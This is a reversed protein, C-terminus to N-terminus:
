AGAADLICSVHIQRVLIQDRMQPQSLLAYKEGWPLQKIEDFAAVGNFPCARSNWGMIVAQPRAFVQYTLKGPTVASGQQKILENQKVLMDRMYQGGGTGCNVTLGYEAALFVFWKWERENHEQVREPTRKNGPIDDYGSFDHAMEYVGGGAEAVAKGIMILEDADALTGPVLVGHSDRHGAFRNISFGVAGAAIAEKVVDACAQKEEYTLPSAIPGGPKDADNCRDGMVWSRVQGHSIMATIDASYHLKDLADMYEPFTEWEFGDDDAWKIGADMSEAPIDEVGELLHLMFDRDEKRCPAASVGCNGMVITTVGGAASPQLLPDWMCQADMHSHVDTWGPLLHKGTADVEQAGVVDLNPGVAVIKDDKIAIDGVVPPTGQLPRLVTTAHSRAAALSGSRNPNAGPARNSRFAFRGLGPVSLTRQRIKFSEVAGVRDTGPVCRGGGGGRGAGPVDNRHATCLQEILPRTAPQARSSWATPPAQKVYM